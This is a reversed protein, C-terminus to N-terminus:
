WHECSARVSSFAASAKNPNLAICILVSTHDSLTTSHYM